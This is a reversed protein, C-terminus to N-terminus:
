STGDLAHQECALCSCQRQFSYPFFSADGDMMRRRCARLQAAGGLGHVDSRGGTGCNRRLAGRVHLGAGARLEHNLKVSMDCYLM